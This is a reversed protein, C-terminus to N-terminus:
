SPLLNIWKNETLIKVGHEEDLIDVETASEDVTLGYNPGKCGRGAVYIRLFANEKNDAKMVEKIKLAAVETIGVM